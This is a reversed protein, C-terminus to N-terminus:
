FPRGHSHCFGITSRGHFRSISKALSCTGSHYLGRAPGGNLYIISASKQANLYGGTLAQNM